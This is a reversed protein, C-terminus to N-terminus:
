DVASHVESMDPIASQVHQALRRLPVMSHWNRAM